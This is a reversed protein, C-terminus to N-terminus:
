DRRMQMFDSEDIEWRGFEETQERGLERKRKVGIQM